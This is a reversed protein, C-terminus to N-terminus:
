AGGAPREHHRHVVQDGVGGVGRVSPRGLAEKMAQFAEVVAKGDGVGIGYGADAAIGLRLHKADVAAGIGLHDMVANIGVEKSRGM